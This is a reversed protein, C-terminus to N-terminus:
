TDEMFSGRQKLLHFINQHQPFLRWLRWPPVAAHKLLKYWLLPCAPLGAYRNYPTCLHQSGSSNLQHLPLKLWISVHLSPYISLFLSAPSQSLKLPPYSPCPPSMFSYFLSQCIHIVEFHPNLHESQTTQKWKWVAWGAVTLLVLPAHQDPTGVALERISHTLEM